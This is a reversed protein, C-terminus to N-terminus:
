IRNAFDDNSRRSEHVNRNRLDTLIEISEKTKRLQAKAVGLYFRADDFRQDEPRLVSFNAEADKLFRVSGGALYARLSREGRLFSQKANAGGQYEPDKFVQM